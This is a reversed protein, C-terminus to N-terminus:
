FGIWEKIRQILLEFWSAKRYRYQKGKPQTYYFM